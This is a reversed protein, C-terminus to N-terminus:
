LIIGNFFHIYYIYMYKSFWNNINKKMLDNLAYMKKKKIYFTPLSYNTKHYVM